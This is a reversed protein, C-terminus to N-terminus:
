EVIRKERHTAQLTLLPAQGALRLLDVDLKVFAQMEVTDSGPDWRPVVDVAERAVGSNALIQDLTMAMARTAGASCTVRCSPDPIRALYRGGSRVAVIMAERIRLARGFEFTGGLLALVIPLILAFELLAAGEESRTRWAEPGIRKATGERCKREFTRVAPHYGARDGM